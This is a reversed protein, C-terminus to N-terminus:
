QVVMTVGGQTPRGGVTITVAQAGSGLNPTNPVTVNIQYLGQINFPAGGKYEVNAPVGGITVSVAANILNLPNVGNLAGSVGPPNTQGAGTIYMSVVSGKAAPAGIGNVTGNQNVIAGQGTGVSPITFIGPATDDVRQQLTNSLQNARRVQINTQVRGAIEFPVVVALQDNRVFIIPAAVNDFLVETGAVSTAFTNNGTLIYNALTTPGLNSGFITVIEGAAIAGPIFSAGNVISNIQPAAAPAVTLNVTVSQSTLGPSSVTVVGACNGAQLNATTVSVTVTGPTTGSAPTATLFGPCSTINTGVTFNVPGGTSTVQFTQNAPPQSAGVQTNFALTSASVAISQPATVNLTVPIIQPSNSAGVVTVVIQGQYTGQSLSAGNVRATITGPVAGSGPTVTLWSGFSTSAVASFANSATGGTIGIAITQDAPAAGGAPQTFTLSTKDLTITASSTLTLTVPVSITAGAPLSPSTITLTATNAGLQLGPSSPVASIQINQPTNGFTPTVNLWSVPNLVTFQVPTAQDTSTLQLTQVPTNAGGLQGTFNLSGQSVNLISTASVFLTVPISVANPAGPSSVTITGTCTQPATIGTPNVSVNFISGGVGTNGSAQSVTLWGTGCSATAVAVNYDLPIGTSSVTIQRAAPAFGGSQFSVTIASPSVNLLTSNSVNLTVPITLPTNGAGSGNVSITGNYTGPPLGSPNVSLTLTAPQAASATNSSIGVMLWNQGQPLATSVTIPIATSTTGIQVTQNAPNGGGIQFNFPAPPPSLVTLLPTASVLFNVPITTTPNAAGPASINLTASYNGPALGGATSAISLTVSGPTTQTIGSGSVVLFNSGGTPSVTFQLPINTNSSTFTLAQSPPLATGTQYAFNVATVPSNNQQIQLTPNGSVTFTVPVEVAAGGAPTISITGSYTNAALGTPMAQVQIQQTTTVTGSIPTIQLWGAPTSTASATFSVPNPNSNTITLTSNVPTTGTQGTLSLTTPSVTLPGGGGTGGVNITVPVTLSTLGTASLQVGCNYTGAPLSATQPFVQVTAPTVSGSLLFNLNCNVGGTTAIAFNVPSGSTSVSINAPSPSFGVPTNFTLSTPGVVFANTQGSVTDLCGVLLAFIPLWNTWKSLTKM